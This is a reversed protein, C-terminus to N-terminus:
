EGDSVRPLFIVNGEEPTNAQAPVSERNVSPLYLTTFGGVQGVNVLVGASRIGGNGDSVTYIFIDQGNFGASPTYRIQTFSTSALRFSTVVGGSEVFNGM